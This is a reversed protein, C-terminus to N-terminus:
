DAKTLQTKVLSFHEATFCKFARFVWIENTTDADTRAICQDIKSEIELGHATKFQSVLRDKHFGEHTCFLGFEEFICTVYSRTLENDAFNWLKYQALTEEPVNFKAVCTQRAAILDSLGKTTWEDASM